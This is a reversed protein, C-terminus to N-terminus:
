DASSDALRAPGGTKRSLHNLNHTRQVPERNLSASAGSHRIFLRLPSDPIGLKAIWVRKRKKSHIKPLKENEFNIQHKWKYVMSCWAPWLAGPTQDIFGLAQKRLPGCLMQAGKWTEPSDNRHKEWSWRDSSGGKRRILVTKTQLTSRIKLNFTGNNMPTCASDIFVKPMKLFCSVQSQANSNTECKLTAM